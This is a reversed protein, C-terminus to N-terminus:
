NLLRPFMNGVKPGDERMIEKISSIATANGESQFQLRAKIVDFPNGVIVGAMGGVTSAVLDKVVEMGQM